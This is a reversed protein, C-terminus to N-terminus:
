FNNVVKVIMDGSGVNYGSCAYVANLEKTTIIILPLKEFDVYMRRGLTEVNPVFSDYYVKIKPFTDLVMKVKANELAEKSKVIFVIDASLEKFDGAQDLMENLIHETPEKGQELWMLVAKNKTIESGLVVNGAEDYVKFEDLALNDLMEALNAQYKELKLVKTEGEGLVFHYKNAFINGNPLRNDTIVRYQGSTVSITLRNGDWKENELDLTQYEGDVLQGISFDPLYLFTEDDEKEFTITCDGKVLVEVPIFAGDAYYEALQNVPNMRSVIGLARCIAVYLIKKSLASANKVTLAGAPSTTIQRYEIEPDFGINECIYTWVEQPNARFAAKQEETFFDLIFQRNKTLPEFYVRPCVVYQYFMDEDEFSYEKTLALAERLIEIDVDRRDKRSLTLLLKEKEHATFTEDELFEMLKTVHSRSEYLIEYIEQCYGYKEVVAKAKAEDFMDAVRQERMANAAATKKMCLEKQEETPRAGNVIQDKPAVSVFQEWQDCVVEPIKLVMEVVDVDPTFIMKENYIGDKKVHINMSGLGCTLSAEGNADTEMIAVNFLHSYNLIGFGVQAGPVRNGAEDKVVVTLKKTVAYLKSNNVFNVMGGKSIFEEDQPEGFCRSHVLMARSSANTFWGKNLVEEPECAGLFYWNGDCYVEIWAHNDDCHSWKPAYIQRAPIGLARYANVGFNSEEGCRGYASYYAGLASITRIDTLQYMVNEANWYNLEIIADHMSMHNIRDALQDYFLKRCDCLEEENVRLHLVYNLFIGEPVDKAFPSNERLFVGHEACAKFIEFDYNAMDSLPSNAYIWKIAFIVDESVSEEAEALCALIEQKKVAGAKELLADFKIQTSDVVNKTFMM